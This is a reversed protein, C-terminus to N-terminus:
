GQFTKLFSEKNVYNTSTLYKGARYYRLYPIVDNGLVKEKFELFEDFIDSADYIFSWIALDQDNLEGIWQQLAAWQPCWSQTLIIAVKPKSAIIEKGFEGNKMCDRAQLNSIHKMDAM